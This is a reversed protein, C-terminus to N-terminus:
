GQSPPVTIANSLSQALAEGRHGTDTAIARAEATCLKSKDQDDNPDFKRKADNYTANFANILANQQERSPKELRIMEQMRERWFDQDQPSCLSQVLQMTGLLGALQLLQSETSAGGSRQLSPTAEQASAALPALVTFAVLVAIARRM